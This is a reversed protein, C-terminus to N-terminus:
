RLCTRLVEATLARVLATDKDSLRVSKSNGTGSIVDRTTLTRTTQSMRGDQGYLATTNQMTMTPRQIHTIMTSFLRPRNVSDVGVTVSRPANGSHIMLM